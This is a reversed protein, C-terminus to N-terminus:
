HGHDEKYFRPICNKMREMLEAKTIGKKIGCYNKAEIFKQQQPTIPYTSPRKRLYFRVVM